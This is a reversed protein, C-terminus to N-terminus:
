HIKEESDKLIFVMIMGVLFVMSYMVVLFTRPPNQQLFEYGLLAVSVISYAFGRVTFRDM